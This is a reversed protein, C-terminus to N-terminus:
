PIMLPVTPEGVTGNIPLIDRLSVLCAIFLNLQAEFEAYDGPKSVPEAWALTGEETRTMNM